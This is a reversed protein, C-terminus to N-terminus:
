EARISLLEQHLQRHTLLWWRTVENQIYDVPESANKQDPTKIVRIIGEKTDTLVKSLSNTPFIDKFPMLGSDTQRTFEIVMGAFGAKAIQERTLSVKASSTSATPIVQEPIANKGSETELLHNAYYDLLLETEIKKSIKKSSIPYVITKAFFDPTVLGDPHPLGGGKLQQYVYDHRPSYRQEAGSLHKVNIQICDGRENCIREVKALPAFAGNIWTDAESNWSM